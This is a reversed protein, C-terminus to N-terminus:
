IRNVSWLENTTTWGTVGNIKFNVMVTKGLRKEVNCFFWALFTFIEVVFLDKLMFYFSNAMMKLSRETLYFLFLHKPLHTDSNLLYQCFRLKKEIIYNKNVSVNEEM